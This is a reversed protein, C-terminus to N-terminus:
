ILSFRQNPYDLIVKYNKLFNYGIIGNKIKAAKPAVKALDTVIIQLNEQTSIAVKFHEISAIEMKADGGVGKVLGPFPKTALQLEEALQQTIVTGGAGTDLVFDFTDSGNINVPVGVLHTDDLYLFKQWNIDSYDAIQDNIVRDFQLKKQPYDVTLILHKLTTFGITGDVHSGCKGLLKDFDLVLVDENEYTENNIRIEQLLAIEHPLSVSIDEVELDLTEIGLNDALKKSITTAKAGTDLVFNFPGKKNVFVDLRIHNSAEDLKFNVVM